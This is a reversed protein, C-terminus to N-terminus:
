RGSQPSIPQLIHQRLRRSGIPAPRRRADAPKRVGQNGREAAVGDRGRLVERFLEVLRLAMDWNVANLREPRNLTITAVGTASTDYLFSRPTFM